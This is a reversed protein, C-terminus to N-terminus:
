SLAAELALVASGQPPPPFTFLHFAYAVVLFLVPLAVLLVLQFIFSLRRLYSLLVGLFATGAGTLFTLQPSDLFPVAAAAKMWWRMFGMPVAAAVLFFGALFGILLPLVLNGGGFLVRLLILGFGIMTLVSPTAFSLSGRIFEVVPRFDFLVMGAPVLFAFGLWGVVNFVREYREM